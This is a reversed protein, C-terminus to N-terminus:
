THGVDASVAAAFNRQLWSVHDLAPPHDNDDTNSDAKIQAEFVSESLKGKKATVTAVSDQVLLPCLTYHLKLCSLSQLM